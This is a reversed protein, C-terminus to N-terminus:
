RYPRDFAIDRNVKVNFRYGARVKITPQVNLNRRTVETGLQSMQQGVASGVTEAPGPYELTSGHRSQSLQFGASFASTLLGMGILRRYHHDVDDRFGSAGSADQGVMGDLEISSADPFIIRSWAVQVVEQGYAVESNYAGILRAGQPILLWHGTATDYVNERVLARIDGPLDSNIDQELIAPINWGSKIEFRGAPPIRTVVLKQQLEALIMKNQSGSDAPKAAATQANTNGTGLLGHLLSEIQTLGPSPQTAAMGQVSGPLSVKTSAAIAEQERQYEVQLRKEEPTADHYGPQSTSHYVVPPAIRAKTIITKVAVQDQKPAAPPQLEIKEEVPAVDRVTNKSKGSIEQAIQRGVDTAAVISRDDAPGHAPQSQKQQRGYIGFIVLALAGGVLLVFIIGARKSLRVTVPPRPNLDLGTPVQIEKASM